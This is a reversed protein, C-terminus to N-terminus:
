FVSLIFLQSNCTGWTEIVVLVIKEVDNLYYTFM